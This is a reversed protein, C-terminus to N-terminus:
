KKSVLDKFVEGMGYGGGRPHPHPLCPTVSTYISGTDESSPEVKPAVAPPLVQKFGFLEGDSGQGERPIQGQLDTNKGTWWLQNIDEKTM